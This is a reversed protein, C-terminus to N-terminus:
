NNLLYKHWISNAHKNYAHLDRMNSEVLHEKFRLVYDIKNAIQQVDNPDVNNSKIWDIEESVVLPVGQSVVDASVINFSETYSVQLCLDMRNILEIFEEHTYWGLEILKHPTNKFLARLNKLVNEGGELRGANVYFRAKAGKSEAFKIAAMAQNLHNKFPRIAGFCGFRYIRKNLQNPNIKRVLYKFISRKCSSVENYINPLYYNVIGISNFDESTQKNNFSVFTNSIQNYARIWGIAMGEMALFPTKSHVRIIFEVTPHLHVLESIKTPTVWLAEIICLNPKFKSLKNDIDNGDICFELEAKIGPFKNIADKVFKASNRLGSKSNLTYNGYESSKKVLFLVNIM